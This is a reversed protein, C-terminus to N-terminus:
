HLNKQRKSQENEVFVEIRRTDPHLEIESDTAILRPKHNSPDLLGGEIRRVQIKKLIRELCDGLSGSFLRESMRKLFANQESFFYNMRDSDGMGAFQDRAWDNAEFFKQIKEKNGWLPKLSAYLRKWYMNYPPSLRYSSETVFHSLCIKDAVSKPHVTKDHGRKRRWGFFGFFVISFFRATFIRGSRAGVIVDFDSNEHPTGMAMSGAALAFEVFPIYKFLKARHRFKKWKKGLLTSQEM